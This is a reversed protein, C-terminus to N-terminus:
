FRYTVTAQFWDASYADNLRNPSPGNIYKVEVGFNSNFNYGIGAGFSLGSSKASSSVNTRMSGIYEYGTWKWTINTYGATVLVFFGEEHGEFSWIGDVAINFMSLDSELHEGYGYYNVSNWDKKGFNLYELRGRFAIEDSYGMEAFGALGFGTNVFDSIDGAPNVFSLQAGFRLESSDQAALPAAAILAAFLTRTLVSRTRSTIQLRNV